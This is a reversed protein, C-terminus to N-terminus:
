ASSGPRLRRRLVRDAHPAATARTAVAPHAVAGGTLIWLQKAAQQTCLVAHIGGRVLVPRHLPQCLCAANGLRMERTRELLSEADRRMTIQQRAADFPRRRQQAVGVQRDGFDGEAGAPFAQACEPADEAVDGALARALVAGARLGRAAPKSPDRWAEGARRM